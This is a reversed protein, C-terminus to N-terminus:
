GEQHIAVRLGISRGGDSEGFIRGASREILAQDQVFGEVFDDLLRL